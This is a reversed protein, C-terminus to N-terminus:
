GSEANKEQIYEVHLVAIKKIKKNSGTSKAQAEHKVIEYVILWRM